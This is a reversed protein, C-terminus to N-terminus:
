EAPPSVWGVIWEHAIQDNADIEMVHVCRGTGSPEELGYMKVPQVVYKDYQIPDGDAGWQMDFSTRADEFYAAIATSGQVNTGGDAYNDCVSNTAFSEAVTKTDGTNMAAWREQLMTQVKESPAQSTDSSCGALLLGLGLALMVASAVVVLAWSRSHTQQTGSSGRGWETM